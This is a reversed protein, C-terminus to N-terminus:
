PSTSSSSWYHETGLMRVVVYAGASLVAGLLAVSPSRTSASAAGFLFGPRAVLLV